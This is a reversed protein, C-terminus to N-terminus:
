EPRTWSRNTSVGLGKRGVTKRAGWCPQMDKPGRGKAAAFSDSPMLLPILLAIGDRRARFPGYGLSSVMCGHM